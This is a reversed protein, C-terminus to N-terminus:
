PGQPFAPFDVGLSLKGTYVCRPLALQIVKGEICPLFLRGEGYLLQGLTDEGHLEKEGVTLLCLYTGAFPLQSCLSAKIQHPPLELEERDGCQQTISVCGSFQQIWSPFPLLLLDRVEMQLRRRRGVTSHAAGPSGQLLM